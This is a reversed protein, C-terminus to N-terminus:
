EEDTIVKSQSLAEHPSLINKEYPKIHDMDIFVM